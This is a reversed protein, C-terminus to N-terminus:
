KAWIRRNTRSRSGGLRIDLREAVSEL